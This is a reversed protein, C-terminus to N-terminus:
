RTEAEALSIIDEAFPLGYGRLTKAWSILKQAAEALEAKVERAERKTEERYGAFRIREDNSKAGFGFIEWKAALVEIRALETQKKNFTDVADLYANIIINIGTRYENCNSNTTMTINM